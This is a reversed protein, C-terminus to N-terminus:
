QSAIRTTFGSAAFYSLAYMILFLFATYSPTFDRRADRCVDRPKTEEEGEDEEM